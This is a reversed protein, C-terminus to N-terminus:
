IDFESDKIGKNIKINEFEMEVKMKGMPTTVNSISRVQVYVGSIDKYEIESQSMLKGKVDYILIKIPIWNINDVYIEMKGLLKNEKKPIGTIVYLDDKQTVSFDFFEKAKDWRMKGSDGMGGMGQGKIKKLDQIVKQGTESNIIAIKNGNTITIQKMPSLVEVKSKDEGKTWMKGTQVMKQPGKSEQGPMAMNSTIATTTEAYMDNLKSQNSQIKNILDDPSLDASQSSSAMIIVAVMIFFMKRM